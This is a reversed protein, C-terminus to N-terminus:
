PRPEMTVPEDLPPAPHKKRFSRALKEMYLYIVPTTYLTLIQSLLLGRDLLYAIGWAALLVIVLQSLACGWRIAGRALRLSNLRSRLHALVTM